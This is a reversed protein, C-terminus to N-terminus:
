IKDYKTGTFKTQWQLYTKRSAAVVKEVDANLLSVPVVPIGNHSVYLAGGFEIVNIDECGMQELMERKARAKREKHATLKDSLWQMFNSM